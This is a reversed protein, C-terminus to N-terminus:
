RSRSMHVIRVAVAVHQPRGLEFALQLLIIDLIQIWKFSDYKDYPMYVSIYVDKGFLIYFLGFTGYISSGLRLKRQLM